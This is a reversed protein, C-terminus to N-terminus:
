GYSNTKLHHTQNPAQASPKHLISSNIFGNFHAQRHLEKRFSLLDHSQEAHSVQTTHTFHNWIKKAETIVEFMENVGSTDDSRHRRRGDPTHHFSYRMSCGTSCHTSLREPFLQKTFTAVMRAMEKIGAM